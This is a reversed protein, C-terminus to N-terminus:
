FDKIPKFQWNENLMKALSFMIRLCSQENPFTEMVKIRRRFEKFAREIVNTSRIKEWHNYPFQYFALLQDLDKEICEVVNPLRSQWKQKFEYFLQQAEAQSTAYFIQKAEPVVISRLTRPCKNVINRIKHVICRQVAVDPLLTDIASLLGANGDVIVLKLHKPSLGRQLLMLLLSEWSKTSERGGLLFGLFEKKGNEGIGIACLLSEKSIWHRRVKLNIADLFLYRIPQTIPRNMWNLYDEQLVKNCKSVTAASYNRGWIAKTIKKVKRTSIGNIFLDAIARTIKNERRIWRDFLKPIFSGKRARPIPIDKILGFRTEFDRYRVGNRYDNREKVRKYPAAGIFQEFEDEITNIITIRAIHRIQEELMDFFETSSPIIDEINESINDKEQSEDYQISINEM